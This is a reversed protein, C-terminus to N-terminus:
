ICSSTISLAVLNTMQSTPNSQGLSGFEGYFMIIDINGLIYIKKAQFGHLHVIAILVLLFFFNSMFMRFKWRTGSNNKEM